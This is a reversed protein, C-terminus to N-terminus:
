FSGTIIVIREGQSCCRWENDMEWGLESLQCCRTDSHMNYLVLRLNDSFM